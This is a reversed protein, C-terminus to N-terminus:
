MEHQELLEQVVVEATRRIQDPALFSAHGRDDIRRIRDLRHELRRGPALDLDNAHDLRMGVGVM